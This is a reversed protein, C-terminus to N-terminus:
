MYFENNVFLSLEVLFSKFNINNENHVFNIVTEFNEFTISMHQKDIDSCFYVAM